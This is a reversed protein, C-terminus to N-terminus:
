YFMKPLWLVLSPVYTIVVLAVLLGGVFPEPLNYRRLLPIARCLAYGPVLVLGAFADSQVVDLQFM